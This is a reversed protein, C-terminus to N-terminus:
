ARASYDATCIERRLFIYSVDSSGAIEGSARCRGGSCHSIDHTRRTGTIVLNIQPKQTAQSLYSSQLNGPSEARGNNAGCIALLSEAM